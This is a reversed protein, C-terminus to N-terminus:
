RPTREANSKSYLVKIKDRPELDDYVITRRTGVFTIQRVKSPELWSNQITAFVSDPFKLSINAVDEVGPTVNASGQCNIQDPVAGIAHMMISLDHPALDWAVNVDKQFLGLSLRQSNIYRLRGLDGSKIIEFVKRIPESYLYTHGVMLTLGKKEALEILEECEASSSAMPKEVLVHKGAELARKTLEYHTKVPTSIVVADLGEDMLLAHSNLHTKVSPYRGKIHELREGSTDSVAEVSAGPIESLNRVYNPGWYGCGIVGFSLSM